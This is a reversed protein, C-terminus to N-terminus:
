LYFSPAGGGPPNLPAPGPNHANQDFRVDAQFAPAAAGLAGFVNTATMGYGRNQGLGFTDHEETPNLLNSTRWASRLQGATYARSRLKRLWIAGHYAHVTIEHVLTADIRHFNPMVGHLAPNVTITTRMPTTDTLYLGVGYNPNASNCIHDLDWWVGGIQVEFKTLGLNGGAVGTQYILTSNEDLYVMEARVTRSLNQDVLNIDGNQAGGFAFGGMLTIRQICRQANPNRKPTVIGMPRQNLRGM